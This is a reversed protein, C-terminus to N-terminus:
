LVCRNRGEALSRCLSLGRQPPEMMHAASPALAQQADQWVAVSQSKIFLLAFAQPPTPFPLLSQACLCPPPQPPPVALRLRVEVSFTQGPQLLHPWDAAARFFEYLADGGRQRTDLPGAALRM